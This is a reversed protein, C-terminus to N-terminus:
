LGKVTVELFIVQGFNEFRLMTGEKAGKGAKAGKGDRAGKMAADLLKQTIEVRYSGIEDNAVLDKDHVEFQVKDGLRFRINSPVNFEATYVDDVVKTDFSKGKQTYNHVRVFLDPKGDMPDWSDKDAKTTKVEVKNIHVTYEDGASDKDKDKDGSFAQGGLLLGGISLMAAALVMRTKLM